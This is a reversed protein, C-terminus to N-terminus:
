GINYQLRKALDDANLRAASSFSRHFLGDYVIPVFCIFLLRDDVAM